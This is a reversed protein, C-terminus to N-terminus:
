DCHAPGLLGNNYDDLTSAWANVQSKTYGAPLSNAPTAVSFYAAAGALAADVAPASGAGAAFNLSAAIYQHALVYYVNGGRPATRLVTLYSAGSLAFDGAPLTSAGPNKYWGQSYTCGRGAVNFFTVTADHFANMAVSVTRNAIDIVPAPDTIPGTDASGVVTIDALITGAAPEEVITLVVPFDPSPSDAQTRTYMTACADHGGANPLTVSVAPVFVDGDNLNGARTASFTYTGAPSSAAKCVDISRPQATVVHALPRLDAIVAGGQEPATVSETACAAVVLAISALSATSVRYISSRPAFQPRQM